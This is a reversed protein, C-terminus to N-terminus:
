NTSSPPAATEITEELDKTLQPYEQELWKRFAATIRYIDKIYVLPSSIHHNKRFRGVDIFLAKDDICGFNKDLIPDDDIISKKSRIILSEILHHILSRAKSEQQNKMLFSIRDHIKEAKKQILFEYNDLDIQFRRGMKDTIVIQKQLNKTKNLHAWVMGTQEKLETMGMYYSDFDLKQKKKRKENKKNIWKQLFEPAPWSSYFRPRRKNHKFFKIVYRDDESIFVFCQGGRGLYSYNQNIAEDLHKQDLDTLEIQPYKPNFTMTSQIHRLSFGDNQRINKQIYYKGYGILVLAITAILLSLNKKSIKNFYTNM